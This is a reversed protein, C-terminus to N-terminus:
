VGWVQAPKIYGSAGDAHRVHLWGPREADVLDLIVDRQAQFVVPAQDDANQRVQAVPVKIMVTRKAALAKSEMWALEGAADRIKTWGEVVVVVEVPYGLNLIYLKKAKASPADYLVAAVDAVARFEAGQALAGWAIMGFGLLIGFVRM